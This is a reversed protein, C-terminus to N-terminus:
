NHFNKKIISKMMMVSKNKLLYEIFVYIISSLATYLAILLWGEFNNKLLLLLPYFPIVGIFSKVMENWVKIRIPTKVYVFYASVLLVMLEAIVSAISAGYGGWHPILILNLVFNFITGTLVSYLFFKDHGLGILIQTGTLNNFGIIIILTSLITLPIIAGGFSEGFFLPVFVPSIIMLGIATPFAMFAVLSFSKNILDSIEDIKNEKLFTSIRPLAVIALSTIISLVLKSMHMATSYYGVEEYDKFFGLMLTDLLTYISIAIVSTFLVLLPKLHQTLGKTTFYPKIGMRLMKSFNWLDSIVGGLINLTIYIILDGKDHVFAFLGVLCFVRIALSRIAIFGFDEIGQFYWNIKIPALYIVFGALLFIIYNQNLQNVFVLSLLFVATVAMTTIAAISMLESVLLRLAKKDDRRKAVERVGYTPIGLLGVLAFYGAYTNAFNYLGVGDPELVRSVYPATILPFIVASVNIIANFVFNAKVSKAM